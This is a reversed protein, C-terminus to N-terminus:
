HDLSTIIEDDTASNIDLEKIIVRFTDFNNIREITRLIRPRRSTKASPAQHPTPRRLCLELLQSSGRSSWRSSWRTEPRGIKQGGGWFSDRTRGTFMRPQWQVAEFELLKKIQVMLCSSASFKDIATRPSIRLSKGYTCTNPLTHDKPRSLCNVCLRM